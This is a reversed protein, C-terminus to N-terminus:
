GGVNGRQFIVNECAVTPKRDSTQEDILDIYKRSYLRRNIRKMKIARGKRKDHFYAIGLVIQIM